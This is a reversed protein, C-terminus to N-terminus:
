LRAGAARSAGAVLATEVYAHRIHRDRADDLKLTETQRGSKIQVANNVPDVSVVEARQGNLRHLARDNRTFQVKHGARLELPKSEFAQVNAGGWQRPRWDIKRDAHDTLSVGGREPDVSGVTLAAGKAIGKKTYDRRFM